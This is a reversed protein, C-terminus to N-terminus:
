HCYPMGKILNGEWYTTAHQMNNKVPATDSMPEVSASLSAQSVRHNFVKRDYLSQQDIPSHNSGFEFPIFHSCDINVTNRFNENFFM